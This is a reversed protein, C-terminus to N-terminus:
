QSPRWREHFRRIWTWSLLAVFGAPLLLYAWRHVHVFGIMSGGFHIGLELWIAAWVATSM